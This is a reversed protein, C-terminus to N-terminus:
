PREREAGEGEPRGVDPAANGGDHRGRACGERRPSSTRKGAGRSASADAPWRMLLRWGGQEDMDVTGGHLAIIRTLLPLCLLSPGDGGNVAGQVPPSASGSDPVSETWVTELMTAAPDLSWAVSLTTGPTARRARWAVLDDLAPGLRSPDFAGVAPRDPPELTLRCGRAGLSEAWSARREDFLLDLPLRVPTVPSPRCLQHLRDVFRELEAYSAEVDAWRPAAPGDGSRRALYLSMKLSNLLNRVEHCYWGLVRHLHETRDPDAAIRLLRGSLDSASTPRDIELFTM